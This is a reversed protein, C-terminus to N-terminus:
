QLQGVAANSIVLGGPAAPWLAASQSFIAVGPFGAPLALATVAAGNADLFVLSHTIILPGLPLYAPCGPVLTTGIPDFALSLMNGALVGPPGNSQVLNISAGSTFPTTMTHTFPQGGVLCGSGYTGTQGPTVYTVTLSPPTGNLTERSDIKRTVFPLAENTKLLWGHNTAPLDLWSQVDALMAPSTLSSATGLPQTTVVLSVNPDFDGGANSWPSGPWFRHLWTADNSMAAGGSGGGGPAVSAGEGWSALLRHGFVDVAGAFASQTTTISLEAAVIRAGPPVMAAVDFRMVPRRLGPQGTVGVFLAPGAGSSLAGASHEFLTNDSACPVVVSTQATAPAVLTTALLITSLLHTPRM